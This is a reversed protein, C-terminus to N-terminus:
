ESVAVYRFDEDDEQAGDDDLDVVVGAVGLEAALRDRLPPSIYHHSLDLKKLHTLPQGSM